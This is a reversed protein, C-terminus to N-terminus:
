IRHYSHNPNDLMSKIAHEINNFWAIHPANGDNTFVKFSM